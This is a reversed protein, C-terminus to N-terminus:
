VVNYLIVVGIIIAGLFVFVFSVHTCIVKTAIRRQNWAYVYESLYDIVALKTKRQEETLYFERLARPDPLSRYTRIWYGWTASLLSVLVLAVAALLLHKTAVNGDRILPFGLLAALIVGSLGLLVGLKTDLASIRASQDDVAAKTESLVVDLSPLPEPREETGKNM